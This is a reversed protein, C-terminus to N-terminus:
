HRNRDLSRYHIAESVHRDEITESRELDAVTRAVKLAKHYSRASFGLSEIAMKLLAEAQPSAACFKEVQRAELESNSSIGEKEYRKRQRDQAEEVRLRISESSEGSAKDTIEGSKLCPVELQIDIRDLMPGSIKSLYKKVQVANCHCERKPDGYNGCPCPNMAAVLMFRAPLTLTMAARSITVTGEEMPQRLVELVNRKFEALEDLFLVGNHSLSIEGPKPYTGGGVMATDSITHHPDRFPRQEVLSRSKGILGAVSHIKTTEVAEEFTISSLITPIRKALMTKGSGPPGIMLVNHRGAAAIELARKAQLQGKIDSFDLYKLVRGESVSFARKGKKLKLEAENKLFQIIQYLNKAPRVNLGELCLAEKSNSEPIVFEKEPFNKLIFAARPLIGAIPKLSGDLSLEGCFVKNTISDLPVAESAALIGVAIALDFGSGEKKLDAPALNVTIKKSPFVVGSNKIAARVRDSSERCAADPLGVINFAPLGNALDVEAEVLFAEIGLVASSLVTALM